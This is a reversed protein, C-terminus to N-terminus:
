NNSFRSVESRNDGINSTNQINCLIPITFLLLSLVSVLLVL